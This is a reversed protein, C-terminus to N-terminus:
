RGSLSHARPFQPGRSYAPSIIGSAEIEGWDLATLVATGAAAACVILVEAWVLRQLIVRHSAQLAAWVAYGIFLILAILLASPMVVFPLYAALRIVEPAGLATAATSAVISLSALGLVRWFARFWNRGHWVSERVEPGLSVMARYVLLYYGLCFLVLIIASLLLLGASLVTSVAELIPSMPPPPTSPDYWLPQIAIDLFVLAYLIAGFTAKGLANYALEIAHDGGLPTSRSLM